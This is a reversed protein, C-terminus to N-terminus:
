STIERGSKGLCPFRRGQKIMEQSGQGLDRQAGGGTRWVGGELGHECVVSNGKAMQGRGHAMGGM